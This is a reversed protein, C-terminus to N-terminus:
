RSGAEARLLSLDFTSLPVKIARYSAAGDAFYLDLLDAKDEDVETFVLGTTATLGWGVVRSGDASIRFSGEGRSNTKGEYQWAVRAGPRGTCEAAPGGGVVVDLLVGRAPGDLDSHDDFLEIQGRGGCDSSWGPMFRADHQRYFPDSLSVYKAADKTYEAGGMKWLVRGSPREIYFVSDMDRASLLVNGTSEDVDISNCHFTEAIPDSAMSNKNVQPATADKVPDLHDLASWTWVVTGTKPEFETLNCGDLKSHAGFSGVDVGLLPALGTLDVTEVPASIVLYNGNPLLRLEHSDRATDAPESYTTTAAILDHFEVRSGFPAFFSITNPRLSDVDWALWPEAAGPRTTGHAYWVPVGRSDLVMAYGGSSPSPEAINGVLYYGPPPTGADPHPEWRLPPFDAPLCRVRYETTSAGATALAVISQNEIARVVVTQEVPAAASPTPQTLSGLAGESPAFSVSLTNSGEACRVYYDYVRPSFAPVLTLSASGSSRVDLQTLWPKPGTAAGATAAPRSSCGLIFVALAALGRFYNAKL